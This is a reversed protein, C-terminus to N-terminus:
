NPIKLNNLQKIITKAETLKQLFIKADNITKQKSKDWKINFIKPKMISSTEEIIQIGFSVNIKNWKQTKLLTEYNKLSGYKLIVKDKKTINKINKIAM